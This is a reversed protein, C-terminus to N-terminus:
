FSLVTLRNLQTIVVCHFRDSLDFVLLLGVTWCQIQDSKELSSLKLSFWGVAPQFSGSIEARSFANQCNYFVTKKLNM